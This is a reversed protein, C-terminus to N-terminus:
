GRNRQHAFAEVVAVSLREDVRKLGRPNCRSCHPTSVPIWLMSDAMSYSSCNGNFNGWNGSPVRESLNGAKRLEFDFNVTHKGKTWNM